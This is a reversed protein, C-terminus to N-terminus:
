PQFTEVRTSTLVNRECGVPRQTSEGLQLACRLGSVIRSTHALASELSKLKAPFYPCSFLDLVLSVTIGWAGEESM